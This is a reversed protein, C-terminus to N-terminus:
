LQCVFTAKTGKFDKKFFGSHRPSHNIPLTNSTVKKINHMEAVIFTNSYLM